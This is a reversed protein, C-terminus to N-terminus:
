KLRHHNGAAVLNERALWSVMWAEKWTTCTDGVPIVRFAKTTELVLHPKFGEPSQHVSISFHM